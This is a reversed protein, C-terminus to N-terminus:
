FLLPFEQQKELYNYISKRSLVGFNLLYNKSLRTTHPIQFRTDTFKEWETVNYDM